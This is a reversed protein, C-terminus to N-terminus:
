GEMVHLARLEANEIHETIDFAHPELYDWSGCTLKQRQLEKIVGACIDEVIGQKLKCGDEGNEGTLLYELPERFDPLLELESMKRFCWKYYPMHERNLLYIMGCASNVFQGLALAAAGEEGHKLCRAYNYQGSQAMEIARAALKKRRVDEPMGHKIKEREASFKGADDRWVEGNVAEALATSPLYLWQRWDEPAGNSGTYRLYFSSITHVGRANEALASSGAPTQPFLRRYERSLPVGIERDTEDDLWLSFGPAFDHDRSIEDDYGFCESGHGALGAAIRNEYEPFVRHLMERGRETYAARAEDLFSM